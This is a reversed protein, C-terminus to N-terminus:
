HMNLLRVWSIGLATWPHQPVRCCPQPVCMQTEACQSCHSSRLCPEAHLATIRLGQQQTTLHFQLMHPCFHLTHAQTQVAKVDEESHVSALRPVHRKRYSERSATLQWPILDPGRDQNPKGDPSESSIFQYVKGGPCCKSRLSKAEWVVTISSIRGWHLSWRGQTLHLCTM